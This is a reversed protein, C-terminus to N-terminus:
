THMSLMLAHVHLLLSVRSTGSGNVYSGQTAVSHQLCLKGFITKFTKGGGVESPWLGGGRLLKSLRDLCVGLLCHLSPFAPNLAFFAADLILPIWVDVQCLLRLRRIIVALDIAEQSNLVAGLGTSPSIMVAKLLSRFAVALAWRSNAGLEGRWYDLYNQSV